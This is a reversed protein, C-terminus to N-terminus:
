FPIKTNITKILIEEVFKFEFHSFDFIPAIFAGM